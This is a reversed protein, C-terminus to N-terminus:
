VGYNLVYVQLPNNNINRGHRQARGIVQAVVMENKANYIIQVDTMSINSGRGNNEGNLILVNIKKNEFERLIKVIRGSMGNLTLNSIGEKDLLLSLKCSMSSNEVFLLVRNERHQKIIKLTAEVKSLESDNIFDCKEENFDSIKTEIETQRIKRKESVRKNLSLVSNMGFDDDVIDDSIKRSKGSKKSTPSEFIDFKDKIQQEKNDSNNDLLFLYQLPLPSNRGLKYYDRVDALIKKKLKKISCNGNIDDINENLELSESSFCIPCYINSYCKFCYNVGCCPTRFSPSAGTPLSSNCRTCINESFIKQMLTLIRMQKSIKNLKFNSAINKLVLELISNNATNNNNNCGILGILYNRADAFLEENMLLSLKSEPFCKNIIRHDPECRCTINSLAYPKFNFCNPDIDKNEVRVVIEQLQKKELTAFTSKIFGKNTIKGLENWRALIGWYFLSDIGPCNPLYISNIEDFIVRQWKLRHEDCYKALENYKNSNCLVIKYKKFIEKDIKDTVRNIYYCEGDVTNKKKKEKKEEKGNNGDKKKRANKEGSKTEKKESKGNKKESKEDLPTFPYTSSATAGGVLKEIENKWPDKFLNHQCVILSCPLLTIPYKTNTGREENEQETTIQQEQYKEVVDPAPSSLYKHRYFLDSHKGKFEELCYDGIIGCIVTPLHHCNEILIKNYDMEIKPNSLIHSLVTKTKGAGVDNSLLAINKNESKSVQEKEFMKQISLKQHSWLGLNELLM